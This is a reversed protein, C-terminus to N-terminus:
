QGKSKQTSTLYTKAFFNCFLVLYSLYMLSSFSINLWTIPCVKDEMWFFLLINVIMAILMQLIQSFTIAMAIYRPVSFGAARVSYYCYMSTHVGFNMIMFLIGGPMMEKYAYWAYILTVIHHYWHLFILRQKRLVIFVTDGLELLKSLTFLYVWLRSVPHVYTTQDCVSQKFGVTYLISSLRKWSRHTGIASFLALGLSWLVLPTRLKYGRREKMFRQTGFILMLYVVGFFFSKQ